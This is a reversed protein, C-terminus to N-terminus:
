QPPQAVLVKATVLKTLLSNYTTVLADFEAKTPTEGAAAVGVDPAEQAAVYAPMTDGSTCAGRVTKSGVPGQVM